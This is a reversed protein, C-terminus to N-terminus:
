GIIESGDSGDTLNDVNRHTKVVYQRLNMNSNRSGVLEELDKFPMLWKLFIYDSRISFKRRLSHRFFKIFSVIALFERYFNGETKSLLQFLSLKKQKRSDRVSSSVPSTAGSDIDM